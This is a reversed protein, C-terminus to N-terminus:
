NIMGKIIELEKVIKDIENSIKLKMSEDSRIIAYRDINNIKEYADKLIKLQKAKAEDIQVNHYEKNIRKDISERKEKIEKESASKEKDNLNIDNITQTLVLDEVDNAIEDFAVPDNNYLKILKRVERTRDGSICKLQNFLVIKVRDWEDENDGIKKRLNAIEQIPGDLKEVRAIDWRNPQGIFELYEYLTKAKNIMLKLESNSIMDNVRQIYEKETFFHNPGILDRYIDALRDIPSYGVREDTGYQAALELSKLAHRDADNTPVPLIICEFYYYKLDSTEAYLERLCTFRRNGDIVRGDSLIVGVEMQGVNKINEKTKEFTASTESKKIYDMIKDNYEKRSLTSIKESHSSDYESMFSAIRGNEDNYYLEDICVKYVEFERSLGAYLKKTMRNLKIANNVINNM